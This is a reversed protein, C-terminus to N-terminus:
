AFYSCIMRLLVSLASRFNCLMNTYSANALPCYCAGTKIARRIESARASRWIRNFDYDCARLNGFSYTNGLVCCAWVDGQPSIQCSAFGAYCPVVQRREEFVRKMMKYYEMRFSQTMRTIFDGHVRVSRMIEALANSLSDARPTIKCGVTMLEEREEAVEFIHTDAGLGRVFETIEHISNLNYISIVTHVGIKLDYENKLARLRKYTDIFRSFNNKFGRIWDHMDGVGDLSLNIILASRAGGGRSGGRSCKMEIFSKRDHTRRFELMERVRREILRPMTANTPVNVINPECHEILASYIHSIDDRLFPEGGSLTVWYMNKGIKEFIHDYEELDLEDHYDRFKWINCTKCRSNCKNTVSITFNIPYAPFGLSRFAKLELIRLLLRLNHMLHCRGIMVREACECRMVSPVRM